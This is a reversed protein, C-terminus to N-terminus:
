LFTETVCVMKNRPKGEEKSIESAAAAEFTSALLRDRFGDLHLGAGPLTLERELSTTGASLVV